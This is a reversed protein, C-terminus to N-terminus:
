QILFLLAPSHLETLKRLNYRLPHVVEFLPQASLQVNAGTAQPGLPYNLIRRFRWRVLLAMESCPSTSSESNRPRGGLKDCIKCGKGPLPWSIIIGCIAELQTVRGRLGIEMSPMIPCLQASDGSAEPIAVGLKCRLGLIWKFCKYRKLERPSALKWLGSSWLSHDVRKLELKTSFFTVIDLYNRVERRM